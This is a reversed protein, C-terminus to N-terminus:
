ASVQPFLLKIDDAVIYQIRREAFSLPELAFVYASTAVTAPDLSWSAVIEENQERWTPWRYASLRHSGTLLRWELQAYAPRLFRVAGIVDRDHLTTRSIVLEIVNTSAAAVELTCSPGVDALHRSFTQIAATMHEPLPKQKVAAINPRSRQPWIKLVRVSSGEHELEVEVEEGLTFDDVLAVAADFEISEHFGASEIAGRAHERSWASIKWLSMGGM